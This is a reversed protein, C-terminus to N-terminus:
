ANVDVVVRGRVRARLIREGTAIVEGLPVTGATIADLKDAALERALLNWAEIRRPKPCTNSNIGLLRVGRLIFPLVTTKLAVGAVNGCAAIAGEPRMAALLHALVDGGAADVAGAWRTKALPREPAALDARDVFSSAGLGALYDHSEPRGTAAVVEFGRAALLAIAVSGLGGAAGTVLVPGDGPELGADRLALVSLAATYGATGIAMAQAASFREPVPVLWNAGAHAREAFGGWYFEGAGWGNVMVRDGPKFDPSASAAVTGAFDVGPVLPVTRVVGPNGALALGDKYNVTSYEIDVSVLPGAEEPLEPIDDEAVERIAPRADEGKGEVVIARFSGTM